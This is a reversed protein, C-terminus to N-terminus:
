DTYWVALALYSWGANPQSVDHTNQIVAKPNETLWQNVQDELAEFQAKMNGSKVWFLKLKM